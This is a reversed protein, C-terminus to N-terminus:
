YELVTATGVEKLSIVKAMEIKSKLDTCHCPHMATLGLQSLYEITPILVNKPPDLLHFGGIIDIIRNDKCVKKAHECINCIGSHSCGTIIVLGQDTKYALASDELLLDQQNDSVTEKSEFTNSREIEGLFILKDTINVPDKSLNLDFHYGLEEESIIMGINGLTDDMKPHMGDPHMTFTSRKINTDNSKQEMLYKLYYILGSTHDDHGHSVVIDDINTLDINMKLANSLFANSYGLDFLIKKGQAEIFLSLGPESLFYRDILANNDVLFTIKM